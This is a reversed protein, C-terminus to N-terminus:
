LPYTDPAMVSYISEGMLPHTAEGVWQCAAARNITSYTIRQQVRTGEEGGLAWRRMHTLQDPQM